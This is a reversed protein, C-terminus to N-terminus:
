LEMSATAVGQVVLMGRLHEITENKEAIIRDRKAIEEDKEALADELEAITSRADKIRASTPSAAIQMFGHIEQMRQSIIIAGLMQFDRDPTRQIEFVDIGSHGIFAPALPLGVVHLVPSLVILPVGMIGRPWVCKISRGCLLLQRGAARRINRADRADFDIHPFLDEWRISLISGHGFTCVMDENTTDPCEHKRRRKATHVQEYVDLHFGGTFVRGVPVEVISWASSDPVPVVLHAPDVGESSAGVKESIPPDEPAPSDEELLHQKKPPPEESPSPSRPRKPSESM